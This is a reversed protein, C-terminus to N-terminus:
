LADLALLSASTIGMGWSAFGQAIVNGGSDLAQVIITQPTYAGGTFTYPSAQTGKSVGNIFVIYHDAGAFATWTWM